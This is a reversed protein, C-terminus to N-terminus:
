TRGFRGRLSAIVVVLWWCEAKNRGGKGSLRALRRLSSSRGYRVDIILGGTMMEARNRLLFKKPCASSANEGRQLFGDYRGTNLSHKAVHGIPSAVLSLMVMRWCPAKVVELKGEIEWRCIEGTSAWYLRIHTSGEGIGHNHREKKKNKKKKEKKKKKKRKRKKTTRLKGKDQKPKISIVKAEVARHLYTPALWEV